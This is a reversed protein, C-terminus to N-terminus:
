SERQGRGEQSPSLTFENSKRERGRGRENLLEIARRGMVEEMWLMGGREDEPSL